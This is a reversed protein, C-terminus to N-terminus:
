AARASRNHRRDALKGKLRWYARLLEGYDHDYVAREAKHEDLLLNHGRFLSVYDAHFSALQKEHTSRMVFPWKM